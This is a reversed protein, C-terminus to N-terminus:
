WNSWSARRCGTLIDDFDDDILEGDEEDSVKEITDPQKEIGPISNHNYVEESSTRDSFYPYDEKNREHIERKKNSGYRAKNNGHYPQYYSKSSGQACYEERRAVGQNTNRYYEPHDNSYKKIELRKDQKCFSEFNKMRENSSTFREVDSKHRSDDIDDRSQHHDVEDRYRLGMKENIKLDQLKKKAKNAQCENRKEVSDNRAIHKNILNVKESTVKPEVVVTKVEALIECEDPHYSSINSIPEKKILFDNVSRERTNNQDSLNNKREERLCSLLRKLSEKEQNSKKLKGCIKKELKHLYKDTDDSGPM